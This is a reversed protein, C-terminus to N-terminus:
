IPPIEVGREDEKIEMLWGYFGRTALKSLKFYFLYKFLPVFSCVSFTIGELEM